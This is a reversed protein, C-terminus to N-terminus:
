HSAKKVAEERTRTDNANIRQMQVHRIRSLRRNDQHRCKSKEFSIWSFFWPTIHLPQENEFDLSSRTIPKKNLKKNQEQDKRVMSKM